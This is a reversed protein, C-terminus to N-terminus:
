GAVQERKVLTEKVTQLLWELGKDVDKGLHVRLARRGRKALSEFDGLSQARALVAFTFREGPIAIDAAADATIQLFVGHDSGGKHLQGTSHLFRPGYGTTTAVHLDRAITERIAAILEDRRPSEAVYETLAVYDGPAVMSLLKGVIEQPTGAGSPGRSGPQSYIAVEGPTGVVPQEALSGRESYEGLIRKTNDKSEQVNPQDFADIGLLAGAVATAFEWTFFIEGLDLPDELIQDVVPHGADALEKLRTTNDTARLRVSVFLRDNGYDAPAIPPEGAVPLIGKGEKGTSEAILQEIWLGLTDLPAPTILTLKDRGQAALAGLITGLMAPANKKPAPVIAVHAAHRARDLLTEVDVGSMAAPVMGFYSLASYRGGIDAQNTFIRRFGDRAADKQLQTNPDTVAVFNEGARDGKVSRVRDYFYRHFVAPETTTGSKSAVIFITRALNLRSELNHVAEPVTSDLVSLKPYGARAGFLRRIVESCLSSGGMGLVVVDDFEGRISAAFSMLEKAVGHMEEAVTLWGLANAIIAKHAADNKWLTTDKSWIREVFKEKEVRQATSDVIQQYGGLHAAQREALGRTVGDRRAEITALLSVFSADFSKVGDATLTTTIDDLSFGKDRFRRLVDRAGDIDQELTLAVKGHDKFAAYTAPPVTNVTDPGILADLYIVDSYKPNKTGTSAWLPRQVRAGLSRLKAFREGGFVEKFEQYALKANAIAIKGLLAELERKGAADTTQAIRTEIQKDAMTDIRSVFFSAVSGIGTVPLGRAARRELGRLYAEMVQRHVANSFILTININIGAAISEEIAPLGEPTAPIKIMVNPRGLRAFLRKAESITGQTDRALLPSVEISVFGDGGQTRNYVPRFVDAASGIDEIVLEDYIEDRTRNESALRRVQVDYDESGGIAKEFITPNSTLGRLDDQDIMQQLKGSTVLKREIQDFWISQGVNELDALPNAM